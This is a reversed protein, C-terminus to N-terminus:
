ASCWMFLLIAALCLLSLCSAASKDCTLSCPSMLTVQVCKASPPTIFPIYPAKISACIRVPCTSGYGACWLALMGASSLCLQAQSCVGYACSSRSMCRAGKTAKGSLSMGSLAVTPPREPTAPQNVDLGGGNGQQGTYRSTPSKSTPSKGGQSSGDASNLQLACLHMNVAHSKM